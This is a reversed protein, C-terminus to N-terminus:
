KLITYEVSLINGTSDVGDPCDFKTETSYGQIRISNILPALDSFHTCWLEVLWGVM